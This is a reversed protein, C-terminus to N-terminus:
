KSHKARPLKELQKKSMWCLLLTRRKRVHPMIVDTDLRSIDNMLQKKGGCIAGTSYFDFMVSKIVKAPMCGLKHRLFCLMDCVVVDVVMVM